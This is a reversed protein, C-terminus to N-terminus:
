ARRRAREVSVHVGQLTGAKRPDGSFVGDRWRDGREIEHGFVAFLPETLGVLWALTFLLGIRMFMALGLGLRRAFPRQEPPLRDTLITIFVINDIGLVLELLTLTLFATWVGPDTLMELM